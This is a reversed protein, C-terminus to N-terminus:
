KLYADKNNQWWDQKLQNTFDLITADTEAKYALNEISFTNLINTVVNLSFINKDLSIHIQNNDSNIEIGKM